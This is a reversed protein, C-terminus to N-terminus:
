HGSTSAVQHFAVGFAWIFAGITTGIVMGIVAATSPFPRKLFTRPKDRHFKRGCKECQEGQVRSLDAYCKMCYMGSLSM